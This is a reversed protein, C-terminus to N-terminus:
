EVRSWLSDESIWDDVWDHFHQLREEDNSLTASDFGKSHMGAQMDNLYHIDQDITATMSTIIWGWKFGEKSGYHVLKIWIM